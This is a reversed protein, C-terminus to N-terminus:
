AKKPSDAIRSGNWLESEMIAKGIIEPIQPVVANGLQKLRRARRSVGNAVRKLGDEWISSRWAEAYLSSANHSLKCLADAFERAFQGGPQPQLSPRSTEVRQWVCRVLEGESTEGAVEVRGTNARKEYECLISLLFAAKPVSPFGGAAREYAEQWVTGRMDRLTETARTKAADSLEGLRDLQRSIGDFCIGLDPESEWRGGAGRNESYARAIASRTIITEAEEIGDCTNPRRQLRDRNPYAIIWVRERRHWAGVSSAPICHWEADYGVESIDWLVRQFWRGSDGSLM